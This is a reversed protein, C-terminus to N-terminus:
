CNSWGFTTYICGDSTGGVGGGASNSWHNWSGDAGRSGSGHRSHVDGAAGLCGSTGNSLNAWCGQANVLYIGPVVRSGLNAELSRWQTITLQEGNVVVPALAEANVPENMPLLLAVAVVIRAISSPSLM